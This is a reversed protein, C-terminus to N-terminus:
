LKIETTWSRNETFWQVASEIGQELKIEPQWALLNKARLCLVYPDSRTAMMDAPLCWQKLRCRLLREHQRHRSYDYLRITEHNSPRITKNDLQPILDPKTLLFKCIKSGIFAAAGTVLIQNRQSM